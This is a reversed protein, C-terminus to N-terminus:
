SIHLTSLQYCSVSFQTFTSLCNKSTSLVLWSPSCYNLLDTFQLLYFNSALGKCFLECFVSKEGNKRWWRGKLIQINREWRREELKAFGTVRTLYFLLTHDGVWEAKNKNNKKSKQQCSLLSLLLLVFNIKYASFNLLLSITNQLTTVMLYITKNNLSFRNYLPLHTQQKDQKWGSISTEKRNNSTLRCLETEM